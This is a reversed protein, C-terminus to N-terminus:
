EYFGHSDFDSLNGMSHLSNKGRKILKRHILKAQNKLLNSLVREELGPFSCSQEHRILPVESVSAEIYCM